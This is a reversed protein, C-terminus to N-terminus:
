NLMPNEIVDKNIKHDISISITSSKLMPIDNSGDGISLINYNNSEFLDVLNKKHKPLLSYGIFNKSKVLIELFKTLNEYNNLVNKSLFQGNFLITNTENFIINNLNNTNSIDLELNEIIGEKFLSQTKKM